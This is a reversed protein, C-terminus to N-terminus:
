VANSRKGLFGIQGYTSHEGRYIILKMFRRVTAHAKRGFHLLDLGYIVSWIMRLSRQWSYEKWM